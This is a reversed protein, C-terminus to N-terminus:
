DGQPGATVSDSGVARLHPPLFPGQQPPVLPWQSNTDKGWDRYYQGFKPGASIAKPPTLISKDKNQHRSGTKLPLSAGCYDGVRPGALSHQM